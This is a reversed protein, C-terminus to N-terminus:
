RSFTSFPPIATFFPPPFSFPSSETAPTKWIHRRSSLSPLLDGLEYIASVHKCPGERAVLPSDFIRELCSHRARPFSFPPTSSMRSLLDRLEPFDILSAIGSNERYLLPFGFPDERGDRRSYKM